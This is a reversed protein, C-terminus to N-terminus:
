VTSWIIIPYPSTNTRVSPNTDTVCVLCKFCWFKEGDCLYIRRRWYMQHLDQDSIRESSDWSTFCSMVIYDFLGGQEWLTWDAPGYKICSSKTNHNMDNLYTGGSSRIQQTETQHSGEGQLEIWVIIDRLAKPDGNWSRGGTCATECKMKM